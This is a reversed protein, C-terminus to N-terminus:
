IMINLTPYMVKDLRVTDAELRTQYDTGKIPVNVGYINLMIIWKIPNLDVM